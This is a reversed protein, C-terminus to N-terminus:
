FFELRWIGDEDKVFLVYYSLRQGNDVRIMRYEAQFEDLGVIELDQLITDIDGLPVTLATFLEQYHDRVRGAIAQLAGAMNGTRLADKMGSWRARLRADFAARDVVEVLATATHSIGTSDTVTVTPFYLGPTDYRFSDAELDPNPLASGNGLDLSIHSVPVSAVLTFRVALPALGGAPTVRLVLPSRAVTIPGLPQRAKVTAGDAATVVAVLETVAPNVPVLAAFSDGQVAARIGNVVVGAETAGQITGQVPLPGPPVPAGPAPSTFAIGLCGSNSVISITVAGGPQGALRVALTNVPRLTIPREILTVRQDFDRPQVVEAGNLTIIGSSVRPRGQPGNEAKLTFPRETNCPTVTETVTIPAGTGRVYTKPGFEPPVPQAVLPIPTVVLVLAAGWALRTLCRIFM